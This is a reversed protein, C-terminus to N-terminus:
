VTKYVRKAGDERFDQLWGEDSEHVCSLGSLFTNAHRKMPVDIM